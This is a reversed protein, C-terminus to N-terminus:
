DRDGDVVADGHAVVAHEVGGLRSEDSVADFGHDVCVAGVGEHTDGVAVLDGRCARAAMRRFMGVMKTEPPGMVPATSPTTSCRRSRMSTVHDHGDVVGDAVFWIALMSALARGM